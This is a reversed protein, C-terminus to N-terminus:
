RQSPAPELAPTRVPWPPIHEQPVPPSGGQSRLRDLYHQNERIWRRLLYWGGARYKVRWARGRRYAGIARAPSYFRQMAKVMATQMDYPSCKRPQVVVHMGGFYQWDRHLLEAQFEEYAATGPFPVLSFIQITDIDTEIAYDVIRQPADVTDDPSIVFMGHIGIDRQHLNDVCRKIDELHHTKGFKELTEPIVSEIGIYMIRCRTQQMLDLLEEDTADQVCMEGSWRLPVADQAIMERLLGKARKRSACFNDDGFCVSRHQIPRLEAIIQDNDKFRYRRGFIPTVSCFMCHHPCGRSTTIIPPTKQPTVQPSLSFDPSPLAALDVPDAWGTFHVDGDPLRYALGPIAEPSRGDALADVLAPFTADGEGVVVYDCHGLAEAAMFTVHPGGMVVVAGAQKVADALRYADPITSSISGIGVIDYGELQEAAVPSMAQFWVDCDYGRQKLIAGLTPIGVRPLYVKSYVHTSRSSAEVLAIRPQAL